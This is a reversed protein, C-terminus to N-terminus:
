SRRARWCTLRLVNAELVILSQLGLMSISVCWEWKLPAVASLEGRRLGNWGCGAAEHGRMKRGVNYGKGPGGRQM